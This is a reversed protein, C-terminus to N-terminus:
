KGGKEPLTFYFTTGKGPESEFWIGGGHREIIKKSITLGIGSGPYEKKRHLRQFIVFIRDSYQPEIGIGNDRISFVWHNNQKKASVHIEPPNNGRFKISNGILNQFVQLLQSEDAPVTPLSKYKIVAGSEELAVKLNRITKELVKSINTQTFPKGRTSVRSYQLLDNILTQMRTVGDVAFDIFDHADEDLKDRYRRALLQVYSSVMRLPEQLDHSAVYAFQQLDENSRMLETNMKKLQEEAHKRETIDEIIGDYYEVNGERDKVTMATESGIFITGDKRMFEVEFNKVYNDEKMRNNFDMKNEYNKYLEKTPLQLIEKKNEYGFIQMFGRNVELLKGGPGSSRYIGLKINEVLTRYKTNCKM